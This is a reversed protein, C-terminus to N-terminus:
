SPENSLYFLPSCKQPPKVLLNSSKNPLFDPLLDLESNRFIFDIKQTKNEENENAWGRRIASEHM